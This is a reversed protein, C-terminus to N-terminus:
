YINNKKRLKLAHLQLLVCHWPAHILIGNKANEHLYGVSTGIM